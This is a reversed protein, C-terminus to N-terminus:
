RERREASKAHRKKERGAQRIKKYEEM